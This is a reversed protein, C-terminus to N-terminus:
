NMTQVFVLRFEPSTLKTPFDAGVNAYLVFWDWKGFFPRSLRFSTDHHTKILLNRIRM